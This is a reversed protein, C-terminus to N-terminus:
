QWVETYPQQMFAADPPLIQGHSSDAWAGYMLLGYLGIIIALAVMRPWRMGVFM